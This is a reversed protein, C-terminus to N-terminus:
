IRKELKIEDRLPINNEGMMPIGPKLARSITMQGPYLAALHFGRRQYFGLGHLNDNTTILSLKECHESSAISEVAALLASGIGLGEHLSALTLIECQSSRIRYHSIGIIEDELLAKLGALNAIHIEEGQVVISDSGWFRKVIDLVISLDDPTIPEINIAM